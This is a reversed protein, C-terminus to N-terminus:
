NSNIKFNKVKYMFNSDMCKELIEFHRHTTITHIILSIEGSTKVEALTVELFLDLKEPFKTMKLFMIVFQQQKEKKVFLGILNYTNEIINIFVYNFCHSFTAITNEKKFKDFFITHSYVNDHFSELRQFSEILSILVNRLYAKIFFYFCICFIIFLLVYDSNISINM